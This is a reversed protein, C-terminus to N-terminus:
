KIRATLHLAGRKKEGFIVYKTKEDGMNARMDEVMDAQSDFAVSLEALSGDSSVVAYALLKNTQRKKRTKKVAVAPEELESLTDVVPAPKKVAKKTATKLAASKGGPIAHALSAPVKKENAMITRKDSPNGPTATESM